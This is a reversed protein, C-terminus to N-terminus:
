QTYTYYEKLSNSIKLRTSDSVDHGLLTDSIKKRREESRAANQIALLGDESYVKKKRATGVKQTKGRGSVWGNPIDEFDAFQKSELTLPNHFWRKGKNAKSIKESHEKTRPPKPKRLKEKFEESKKTGTLAESIKNRSEQSLPQGGWAHSTINYGIEPNTSDLEAIWKEEAKDASEKSDCIELIERSFSEVGYKEIAKRILKGSGLYGDEIRKTKHQGVYIKGNVTNTTKYILWMISM